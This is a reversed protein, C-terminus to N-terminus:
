NSVKHKLIFANEHPHKQTSTEILERLTKYEYKDLYKKSM